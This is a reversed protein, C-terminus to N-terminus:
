AEVEGIAEAVSLESSLLRPLLTDRLVGLVRVQHAFRQMHQFLPATAAQFATLLESDPTLLTLAEIHAKTIAERSAGANLGLLYSKIDPRLLNMHIFRPPVGVKARIIAVHQNVRAPLVEPEVVCTRLISAGTINLLVDEERVTVGKLQTAADDSIRALGEWVFLSDYVNQSRILAVGEELYVEKGGRPTSGSGIKDTLQALTKYTWGKPIEGFKSEEMEDPFLAATAALQEYQEPPMADLEADPKGSISTMAARLPDRGEQIAAVKAKAPDFDVFWSKFIAQAMAELTQNISRNLNVKDTLSFKITAIRDQEEKSLLDVELKLLESQRIGQVTSGSARASIQNQGKASALWAALYRPNILEPNPRLGFVRQGLVYKTGDNIYFVEGMPAESTLVIDGEQVEVAMWKKYMEASAYRMSDVDVLVDTKVHKASLVPIGSSFFDDFGLKNPTKGRHDIILELLDVLPLRTPRFSM